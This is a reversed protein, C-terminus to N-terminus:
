AARSRRIPEVSVTMKVGAANLQDQLALRVFLAQPYGLAQALRVALDRSVSRRGKEIDCRYQRSLRVRTALEVQSVEDCTRVAQITGGLTLPGGMLGELFKMAESRKTSM